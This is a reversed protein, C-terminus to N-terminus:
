KLLSEEKKILLFVFGKKDANAAGTLEKDSLVNRWCFSKVNSAALGLM